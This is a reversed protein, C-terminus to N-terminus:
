HPKLYSPDYNFLLYKGKRRGVPMYDRCWIDNTYDLLGYNISADALAQIIEKFTGPLHKELLASFWVTKNFEKM